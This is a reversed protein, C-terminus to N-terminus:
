KQVCKKGCDDLHVYQAALAMQRRKGKSIMAKDASDKVLTHYINNPLPEYEVHTGISRCFKTQLSVVSGGDQLNKLLEGACINPARGMDRDTSLGNDTGTISFAASSVRGEDEDWYMDLPRVARYLWEVDDVNSNSYEM